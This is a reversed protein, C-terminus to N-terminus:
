KHHTCGMGTLMAAFEDGPAIVAVAYGDDLLAKLVDSRFNYVSWCNRSVFAILKKDTPQQVAM